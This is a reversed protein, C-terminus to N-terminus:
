QFYLFSFFSTYLSFYILHHLTNNEDFPFYFHDSHMLNYFIVESRDHKNTEIRGSGVLIQLAKGLILSLHSMRSWHLKCTAERKIQV